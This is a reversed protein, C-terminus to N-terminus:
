FLARVAFGLAGGAITVAWDTWDWKGGWARDKFELASAVAVVALAAAYPGPSLLGLAAGGALHKYRNSAALWGWVKNLM